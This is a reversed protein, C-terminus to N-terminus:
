LGFDIAPVLPLVVFSAGRASREVQDIGGTLNPLDPPLPILHPTDATSITLRLRHGAAITALTPRVDIDYRTLRGPRVPARSERAYPHYPVM